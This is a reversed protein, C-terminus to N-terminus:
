LIDIYEAFNYYIYLYNTSNFSGQFALEIFHLLSAKVDVTITGPVNMLLLPRVQDQLVNKNVKVKEFKVHSGEIESKLSKM